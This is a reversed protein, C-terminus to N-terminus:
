RRKRRLLLGLAGSGLALMSSPEPTAVYSTNLAYKGELYAGVTNEEASSLARNYVVISAVDLAAFRGSNNAPRGGLLMNGAWERGTANGTAKVDGNLKAFSDAGNFEITMIGYQQYPIFDGRSLVSQWTFDQYTDATTYMGYGGYETVAVSKGGWTLDGFAVIGAEGYDPYTSPNTGTYARDKFVVFATMTTGAIAGANTFMQNNYQGGADSGTLLRVAAHGNIESQGTIYQPACYTPVGDVRGWGYSDLSYMSNGLGSQDAWTTLSAGNALGIADADMVMAIGNDVGAVGTAAFACCSAALLVMVSLGLVCKLTVRTKM